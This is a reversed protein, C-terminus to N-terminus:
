SWMKRQQERRSCDSTHGLETKAFVATTLTTTLVTIISEPLWVAEAVLPFPQWFCSRVGRQGRGASRQAGALELKNTRKMNHEGAMLPIFLFLSPLLLSHTLLHTLTPARQWTPARPERRPSPKGRPSFLFAHLPSASCVALNQACFLTRQSRAQFM